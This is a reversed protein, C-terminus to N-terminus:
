GPIRGYDPDGPQRGWKDASYKTPVKGPKPQHAGNQEKKQERHEWNLITAYHSHFKYGKSEIGRSLAEIWENTGGMGFKDKLKQYEEDALLVNDFEGYKRKFLKKQITEKKKQAVAPSSVKTSSETLETSSIALETSSITLKENTSQGALKVDLTSSIALEKWAEWDKQFGIYKGKRTIVNLYSLGKLTRSVVAKCLGTAEVIQFNAIYDVKKHFGYTKRIICMLVRWQNASLHIRMLHELIENAIQTHGNELQPKAMIIECDAM